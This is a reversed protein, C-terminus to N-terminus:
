NEGSVQPHKKFRTHNRKRKLKPKLLLLKFLDTTTQESRHRASLALISQMEKEIKPIGRRRRKMRRRRRRRKKQAKEICQVRRKHINIERKGETKEKVNSQPAAQECSIFAPYCSDRMHKMHGVLDM